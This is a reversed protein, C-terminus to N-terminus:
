CGLWHRVKNLAKDQLPWVPLFSVSRGLFSLRGHHLFFATDKQTKRDHAADDPRGAAKDHLSGYLADCLLPLGLSAAHVRIQHRAGRHIVVGAIAAPDEKPLGAAEAKIIGDLPSSLLPYFSTWRASDRDDESLARMTKQGCRVLRARVVAEKELTGALLCIYKKEVEGREEALRFREEGEKTLACAVLGSTEYDLRQLLRCSGASPEPLLSPLMRELSRNERGQLSVTHLCSPKYLVAYDCDIFVLQPSDAADQGQTADHGEDEKADPVPLGPLASDPLVILQDGERVFSGPKTKHNNLLVRGDEILRRRARLSLPLLAKLASDARSGALNSDIRLSSATEQSQLSM